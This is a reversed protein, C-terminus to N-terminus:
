SWIEFELNLMGNNVGYTTSSWTRLQTRYPLVLRFRTTDYPVIYCSTTWNISEIIGGNATVMVGALTSYDLPFIPGTYTNNYRTGLTFVFGAPLSILYDGSGANSNGAWGMQYNLRWKDGLLRWSIRQTTIGTFTPAAITGGITISDQFVSSRVGMGTTGTFGTPGMPGASFSTVTIVSSTQLSMNDSSNQCYVSFSMGPKLLILTTNTVLKGSYQTYGYNTGNIAIYTYGSVQRNWELNYQVELAFTTYTINLFQGGSYVLGNIGGNTSNDAITTDWLVIAKALSFPQAVSPTKSLM